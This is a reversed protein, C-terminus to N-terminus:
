DDDNKSAERFKVCGSSGLRLMWDRTKLEMEATKDLSVQIIHGDESPRKSDLHYIGKMGRHKTQLDILEQLESKKLTSTVFGSYPKLPTPMAEYETRNACHLGQKQAFDCFCKRDRTTPVRVTIVEPQWLWSNIDIIQSGKRGQELLYSDFKARLTDDENKDLPYFDLKRVYITEEGSVGTAEEDDDEITPGASPDMRGKEVMRPPSSVLGL